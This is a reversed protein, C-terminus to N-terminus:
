NSGAQRAYTARSPKLEDLTVVRSDTRVNISQVVTYRRRTLQVTATTETFSMTTEPDVVEYGSQKATRYANMLVWSPTLRDLEITGTGTAEDVLIVPQPGSYERCSPPRNYFTSLTSLQRLM